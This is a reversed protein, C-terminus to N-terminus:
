NKDSKEDTIDTNTSTTTTTNISSSYNKLTIAAVSLPMLYAGFKFYLDCTIRRLGSDLFPDLELDNKLQEKDDIGLINSAASSYLNILSKGLSRSMLNSLKEEYRDYLKIVGEDSLNNIKEEKYKKGLYIESNGSVICSILKDRKYNISINTPETIPENKVKDIVDILKDTMKNIFSFLKNYRFYFTILSCSIFGLFVTNLFELM